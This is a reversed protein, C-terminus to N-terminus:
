HRACPPLAEHRHLWAGTGPGLRRLNGPVSVGHGRCVDRLNHHRGSVVATGLDAVAVALAIVCIAVAIPRLTHRTMSPALRNRFFFPSFCRWRRNRWSRHSFASHAWACGAIAPATPRYVRRGAAAYGDRSGRFRVEPQEMPPLRAEHLLAPRPGLGRGLRAPACLLLTSAVHYKLEALMSSASYVMVLGFCVLALTTLFLIWDTKLRQAM